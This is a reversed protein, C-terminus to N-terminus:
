FTGSDVASSLGMPANKWGQLTLDYVLVDGTQLSEAHCDGHQALDQDDIVQFNELMSSHMGVLNLGLIRTKGLYLEQFQEQLSEAM